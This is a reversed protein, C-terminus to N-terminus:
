CPLVCHAGVKGRAPCWWYEEWGLQCTSSPGCILYCPDPVANEAPAEADDAEADDAEAELEGGVPPSPELESARPAALALEDEASALDETEGDVCAASAMSLVAFLLLAPAVLRATRTGNWITMM